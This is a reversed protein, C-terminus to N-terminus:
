SEISALRATHEIGASPDLAAVGQTIARIKSTLFEVQQRLLVGTATKSKRARRCSVVERIKQNRNGCCAGDGKSIGVLIEPLREGVRVHGVVPMHLRGDRQSESHSPLIFRRDRL